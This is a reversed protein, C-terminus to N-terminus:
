QQCVCECVADKGAQKPTPDDQHGIPRLIGHLILRNNMMPNFLHPPQLLRSGSVRWYVVNFGVSTLAHLQQLRQIQHSLSASSTSSSGSVQYLLGNERLGEHSTHLTNSQNPPQVPTSYSVQLTGRPRHLGLGAPVSRFVNGTTTSLWTRVGSLICM